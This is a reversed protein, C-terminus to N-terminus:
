KIGEMKAHLSNLIKMVDAGMFIFDDVGANKYEEIRDKPYGALIIQINQNKSKLKEAVEPVVVKYKDDTSCIIVISSNSNLASEVVEDTSTFGDPYIIEFGGVEFFGKTFEARAKYEKVTGMNALFATPLSGNKKKFQYARKRLEEFNESARRTSLRDIVIDKKHSSTLVSTVEGLTAGNTYAETMLELIEIGNNNHISDLNKMVKNHTEESGNLRYKKLYEARKEKFAKQDLKSEELKTENIDVFMNTGVIVSKRKNIDKERQQVVESISKQIAGTILGEFMGGNNEIEKFKEWTEKALEDTLTEIYYSGGAADIVQDLHSEERLITQTNRAIRRSFDDPTRIEEDFTSTTINDAGGVIASFTQTTSRLLNVYPDNKTHYFTSTEAAINIELNESDVGYEKAINTILIRAARFKAIEMFYNTSTGLTFQIKNLVNKTDVKREIMENLYYVLTSMAVALEQVSNAGSSAYPLTNIGIVKLDPINEASWDVALKMMDFCFNIDVPLEGLDCLHHIPDSTIAGQLSLSDLKNEKLHSNLLALFPISNFGTDLYIPFSNIEIKNLVKGLSKIGSISLGSDGVQETTAYDADLGLKTATDLSINISNQGNNLAETLAKNFEVPNAINIEQNVNWTNKHYGTSSNGRVNNEDGPVSNVFKLKEIDKKTYIPNLDIGEYTKTILKKEFSAGKLDKEVQTKWDEFSPVPFSENINVNENLKIDAVENNTEESM